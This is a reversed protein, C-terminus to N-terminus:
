GNLKLYRGANRNTIEIVDKLTLEKMKSIFNASIICNSPTNREGKKPGLAPSDSELLLLDLPVKRILREGYETSAYSPPVSFFFGRQAGNLIDEDSGGFAHLLVGELKTQSLINITEEPASRSHVNVPLNFVRALRLQETLSEQQAEKHIVGSKFEGICRIKERNDIIFREMDQLDELVCCRRKKQVPHIGIAAIVNNPFLEKLKMVKEFQNRFEPVVVFKNVGEEIAQQIVQNVDEKFKNDVLHCHCDIM